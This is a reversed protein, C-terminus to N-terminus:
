LLVVCGKGKSGYDTVLQNRSNKTKRAASAEKKTKKSVVSYVSNWPTKREKSITM